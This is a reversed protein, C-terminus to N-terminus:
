FLDSHTGTRIIHIENDPFTEWILLWDYEIHCEWCGNYNGDLTHPKHKKPVTGTTKLEEFIKEIKAIQYKRSKCLAFDKKFKNTFSISYM